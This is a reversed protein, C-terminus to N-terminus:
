LKLNQNLNFLFEEITEIYDPLQNYIQRNDAKWHIIRKRLKILDLMMEYTTPTILNEMLLVQYTNADSEPPQFNNQSILHNSLELTSEIINLLHNQANEYKYPTLLYQKPSLQSLKRLEKLSRYIQSTIKILREEDYNLTM